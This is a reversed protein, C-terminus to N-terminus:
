PLVFCFHSCDDNSAHWQPVDFIDAINWQLIRGTKIPKETNFRKMIASEETYNNDILMKYVTRYDTSTQNVTCSMINHELHNLSSNNLSQLISTNNPCFKSFGIEAAM